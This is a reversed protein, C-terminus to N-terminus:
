SHRKRLMFTAVCLQSGRLPVAPAACCGSGARAHVGRRRPLVPSRAAADARRTGPALIGSETIALRDPPLQPLLGLTTELKTEFTRLDRNNIGILPTTLALARELEPRDHVEVLVAMELEVALAELERM